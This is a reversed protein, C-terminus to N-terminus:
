SPGRSTRLELAIPYRVPLEYVWRWVLTYTTRQLKDGCRPCYAELVRPQTATQPWRYAVRCTTCKGQRTRASM